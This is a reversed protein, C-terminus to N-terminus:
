PNIQSLSLVRTGNVRNFLAVTEADTAQAPVRVRVYGNSRNYWFGAEHDEAIKITPYIKGDIDQVNASEADPGKYPSMPLKSSRFWDGDLRRPFAGELAYHRDITRQIAKVASAASAHRSDETTSGFAPLIAAAFVALLVAVLLLELVTFGQRHCRRTMM